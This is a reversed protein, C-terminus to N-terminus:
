SYHMSSLTQLLYWVLKVVYLISKKNLTFFWTKIMYIDCFNQFKISEEFMIINHRFEQINNNDVDECM